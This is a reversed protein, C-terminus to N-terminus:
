GSMMGMLLTIQELATTLLKKILDQILPLLSALVFMGLAIKIAFGVQFINLRPVTRAIIGLAVDSVLIVGILPLSVQLGTWFILASIRVIESIESSGLQLGALPVIEFSRAFAGLLLLHGGFILFMLTTFVQLFESIISLSRSSEPDMVQVFSFGIQMGILEGAFRLGEISLVVVYGITFGLALERIIMLGYGPISLEPLIQTARLHPLLLAACLASLGAKVRMPIISEGFVPMNIFFGSFRVMGILFLGVTNLFEAETM